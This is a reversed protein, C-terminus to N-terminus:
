FIDRTHGPFCISGASDKGLLFDFIRAHRAFSDFVKTVTDYITSPCLDKTTTNKKVIRYMEM